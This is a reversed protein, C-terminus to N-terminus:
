FDYSVGFYVARPYGRKRTGSSINPNISSIYRKDLLNYAAVQFRTNEFRGGPSGKYSVSANFVTYDQVLLTNRTDAYRDDMFQGDLAASFNEGTWTVSASAIIEAQDPLQNGDVQNLVTLNGNSDFSFYDDKYQSDIYSVSGYLRWGPIPRYDGVLEVGKTEVSNVNLYTAGALGGRAAGSLSIIRDDYEVAFASVYSSWNSGEIRMGVDLNQSSEPKLDPNYILSALGASPISGFNEAYNVFGQIGDTFDFTMGLQPQFWDSNPNEEDRIQSLNFDVVNAYGTLRRSTRLGKFGAQVTFRGLTLTDKLYVSVVDTDVVYDTEIRIAPTKIFEGTVPDTNNLSQYLDYEHNELWGGFEVKNLGLDWTFATTLGKRTLTRRGDRQVPLGNPPSVDTRGPTGAIASNYGNIGVQPSLGWFIRSFNHHYYATTSANLSETIALDGKLSHVRTNYDNRWYGIWSSDINPDGTVMSNLNGGNAYDPEFNNLINETDHDEGFAWRFAYTLTAPGLEKMWKSEFRDARNPYRVNEFVGVNARAGSIYGRIGTNGLEGTDYRMFARTMDYRGVTASVKGGEEMTPDSSIYRIAGGLASMAPQTVDGSGPSVQVGALNESLVLRTIVSGEDKSGMFPMGDLSLGIQNIDFGRIRLRNNLEYLGFPDSTQVNVGPMEKLIALPSVGQIETEISEVTIASTTRAEGRGMINIEELVALPESDTSQAHVAGAALTACGLSGAISIRSLATKVARRITIPRM